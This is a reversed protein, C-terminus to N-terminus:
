FREHESSGLDMKWGRSTNLTLFVMNFCSTELEGLKNFEYEEIYGIQVSILCVSLGARDLPNTPRQSVDRLCKWRRGAGPVGLWCLGSQWYLFLFFHYRKNMLNLAAELKRFNKTEAWSQEYATKMCRLWTLWLQAGACTCPLCPTKIFSRAAWSLQVLLVYFIPAAFTHQM